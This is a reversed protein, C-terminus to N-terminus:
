LPLGTLTFVDPTFGQRGAFTPAEAATMSLALAPHWGFRILWAEDVDTSEGDETGGGHLVADGVLVDGRLRPRTGGGRLESWLADARSNVPLGLGKGDVNIWLTATDVSLPAAEISGGVHRQLDALEDEIRELRCRQQSDAPIVIALTSM